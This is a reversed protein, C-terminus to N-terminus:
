DEAQETLSVRYVGIGQWEPEERVLQEKGAFIQALEGEDGRGGQLVHPMQGDYQRYPYEWAQMSVCVSRGEDLERRITQIAKETSDLGTVIMEPLVRELYPRESQSIVIKEHPCNARIVRTTVLAAPERQYAWAVPVLSVITAVVAVAGLRKPAAAFGVPLLYGALATVRGYVGGHWYNNLIFYVAAFLMGPLRLKKNTIWVYGGIVVAGWGYNRLGALVGKYIMRGFGVPTMVEGATFATLMIEEGRGWGGVVGLFGAYMLGGALCALILRSERYRILLPVAWLLSAPYNLGALVVAIVGGAGLKQQRFYDLYVVLWLLATLSETTINTQVLFVLPLGAMALMARIVGGVGYKRGVECAVLGAAITALVVSVLSLGREGALKWGIQWLLISVPHVFAHSATLAEFYHLQALRWYEWGDFFHPYSSVAALRTFVFLGVGLWVVKELKSMRNKVERV